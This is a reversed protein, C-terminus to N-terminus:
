IKRYSKGGKWLKVIVEKQLSSLRRARIDIVSHEM